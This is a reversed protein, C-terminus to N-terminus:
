VLLEAFQGKVESQQEKEIAQKYRVDFFSEAKFLAILLEL